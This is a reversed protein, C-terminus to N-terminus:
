WAGDGHCLIMLIVMMLFVYKPIEDVCGARVLERKPSEMMTARLNSFQNATEMHWILETPQLGGVAWRHRSRIVGRQLLKYM